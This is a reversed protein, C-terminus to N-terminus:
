DKVCEMCKTAHPVAALRAESIPENCEVCTGYIGNDIRQIAVRLKDIEELAVNGLSELVEDDEMEVANEEFDPSPKERLEADIEKASELLEAIRAEFQARLKKTDLM